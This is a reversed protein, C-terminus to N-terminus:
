KEVDKGAALVLVFFDPTAHMWPHEKDIFVGCKELAFDKHNASM